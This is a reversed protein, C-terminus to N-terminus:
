RLLAAIHKRIDPRQTVGNAETLLQQGEPKRGSQLYAAGLHYAVVENRPAAKRAKELLAVGKKIDGSQVMVWGLADSAVPHAESLRYAKEALKQADALSEKAGAMALASRVLLSIDDPYRKLLGSYIELAKPPQESIEYLAALELQLTPNDPNAKLGDRLIGEAEKWKAAEARIGALGIWSQLLAPEIRVADRFHTEAEASKGQLRMLNGATHHAAAFDPRSKLVKQITTTAAGLDGQASQADALLVSLAPQEPHQSALRTLTETAEKSKGADFMTSLYSSLISPLDEAPSKQALALLEGAALAPKGEETYSAALRQRAIAELAPASKIVENLKRQAPAYEHRALDVLALALKLQPSDAKLHKRAVDLASMAAAPKHMDAHAQSLLLSAPVAEPGTHNALSPTLLAIIEENRGAQSYNRALAFHIETLSGKEPPAAKFMYELHAIASAADGRREALWALYRHALLEQPASAVVEKLLREGEPLRDQLLTTVGLKAKASSSQPNLELARRFSLAAAALNGEELLVMGAIEVGRPDNPARKIYQALAEKAKDREKARLLEIVSQLEAASVTKGVEYDFIAGPNTPAAIPAAAALSCLLSVTLPTIRRVVSKM